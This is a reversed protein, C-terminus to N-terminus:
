GPQLGDRAAGYGDGSGAAQASGPLRATAARAAYAYAVLDAASVAAAGLFLWGLRNGSRAAILAGVVAFALVLPMTAFKQNWAEGGTFGIVVSAVVLVVTLGLLTWALRARRGPPQHLM